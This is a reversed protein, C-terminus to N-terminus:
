ANVLEKEKNERRAIWPNKRNIAQEKRTSWKCNEPSYGANNDIRDLTLGFPKVGLDNKFNDYNHWRECVIIGRGGYRHFAHHSPEYCRRMMARWTQYLSEKRGSDGQKGSRICGCSKTNGSKLSDGNCVVSKGCECTCLWLIAGHKSRGAESVVTINGFKQSSIDKFVGM